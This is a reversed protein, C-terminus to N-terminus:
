ALLEDVSLAVVLIVFTMCGNIAYLQIHFYYWVGSCDISLELTSWLAINRAIMLPM